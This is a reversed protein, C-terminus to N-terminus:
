VLKLVRLRPFTFVAYQTFLPTLRSQRHRM